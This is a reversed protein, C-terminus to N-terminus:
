FKLLNFKGKHVSTHCSHCLAIINDVNASGTYQHDIIHHGEVKERSGCIQCINLDRTRGDRQAKTHAATRKSM